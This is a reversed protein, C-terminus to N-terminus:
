GVPTITCSKFDFAGNGTVWVRGVRGATTLFAARNSVVDVMTEGDGVDKFVAVPEPNPMVFRLECDVVYRKATDAEWAVIVSSAKPGAMSEASNLGPRVMRFGEFALHTGSNLYPAQVSLTAPEGLTPNEVNMAKLVDLTRASNVVPAPMQQIPVRIREVGQAFGSSAVCALALGVYRVTKM